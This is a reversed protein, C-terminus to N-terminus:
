QNLTRALADVDVLLVLGEPANLVGSVLDGAQGAPSAGVEDAGVTVVGRVEEVLLGFAGGDDPELVVVHDRGSGLAAVVTLPQGEGPLLGVVGPRPSPLPLLGAASRVERAHEVAVAYEGDGTRFRVLTTV